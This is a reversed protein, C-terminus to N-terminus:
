KSYHQLVDYIDSVIFRLILCFYDQGCGTPVYICPTSICDGKNNVETGSPPSHDVDCGLWKDGSLAGVGMLYSAPHAGSGTQNTKPSSFMEQGYQFEFVLSEM